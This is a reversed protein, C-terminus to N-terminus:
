SPKWFHKEWYADIDAVANRLFDTTQTKRTRIKEYKFQIRLNVKYIEM